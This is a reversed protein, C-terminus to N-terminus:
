RGKAKPDPKGAAAAELAALRVRLDANEAELSVVADSDAASGDYVEWGPQTSLLASGVDDPLDFVRHDDRTFSEGGFGVTETSPNTHRLLM